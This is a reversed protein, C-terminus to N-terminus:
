IIYPNYLHLKVHEPSSCVFVRILVVETNKVDTGYKREVSDIKINDGWEKECRVYREKIEYEEREM